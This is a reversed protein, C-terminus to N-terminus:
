LGRRGRGGLCTLFQFCGERSDSVLMRWTIRLDQHRLKKKQVTPIHRECMLSQYIELWELYSFTSLLIFNQGTVTTAATTVINQHHYKLDKDWLVLCLTQVRTSSRCNSMKLDSLTCQHDLTVWPETTPCRPGGRTPYNARNRPPSSPVSDRPSPWLAPRGEPPQLHIQLRM